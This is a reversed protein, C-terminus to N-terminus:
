AFGNEKLIPLWKETAIRKFGDSTPHLENHWEKEDKLTGRSDVIVIREPWRSKLAKLSIVFGDILHNICGQWHQPPVRAAKLSPLIWGEGGFVGKGTPFAYDYTHVFVKAHSPLRDFARSVLLMYNELTDAMLWAVTGEVDSDGDKFCEEATKAKSCDAKLLPLLDSKGAFENGGGSLLLGDAGPAHFQLLQRALKPVRPQRLVSPEEALSCIEL